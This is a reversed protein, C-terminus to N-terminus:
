TNLTKRRQQEKWRIKEIRTMNHFDVHSLDCLPTNSNDIRHKENKDQIDNLYIRQEIHLNQKEELRNNKIGDKRNSGKHMIRAEKKIIDIKNETNIDNELRIESNEIKQQKKAKLTSQIEQETLDAYKSNSTKVGVPLKINLKQIVEPCNLFAMYRKKNNEYYIIEPYRTDFRIDLYKKKHGKIGAKSAEKGLWNLDQCIFYRGDYKIGDRTILAKDRTFLSFKYSEIDNVYSLQNHKNIYYSWINVPTLVIRNEYLEKNNPYEDMPNNNYNLIFRIVIQSLQYIDLRANRIHPQGYKGKEIEGPLNNKLLNNMQKFKQEVNPKYSGMGPPAFDISLGVERAMEMFNKSLYESGNDVLISSPIVQKMPWEGENIDIGYNSCFEKKNEILNLLALEAGSWSNNDLGISCAVIARSFVDVIFYIIARGIVDNRDLRNVLYFDSEVEDMEYRSGITKVDLYAITDSFTPRINNRAYKIGNRKLEREVTDTHTKIWYRLQKVTPRLVAPYKNYVIEAGVLKKESYFERVMQNYLKTISIKAGGAMYRATMKKFIEEVKEDRAIASIGKPGTKANLFKRNNNGGCNGYQPLVAKLCMGGQLYLMIKRRVTNESIDFKMMVEKITNAIEEGHLLWEFNDHNDLIYEIVERSKKFIRQQNPPLKDVDIFLDDTDQALDIFVEKRTIKYIIDATKVKQVKLRNTNLKIILIYDKMNQLVRWTEVGITLKDNRMLYTRDDM